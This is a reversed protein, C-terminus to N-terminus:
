ARSMRQIHRRQVMKRIFPIESQAIVRKPNTDSGPWEFLGIGYWEKLSADATLPQQFSLKQLQTRRVTALPYGLLRRRLHKGLAELRSVADVTM